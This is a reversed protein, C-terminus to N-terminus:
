SASDIGDPVKRACEFFHRESSDLSHCRPPDAKKQPIFEFCILDTGLVRQWFIVLPGTAKALESLMMSAQTNGDMDM